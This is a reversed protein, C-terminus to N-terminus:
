LIDASISEAIREATEHISDHALHAYRATTEIDSHGLLKGIVPLTEGLALARSAFSHRLDHIRVDELEARARIRRWPKQLGVVGIGHHRAVSKLISSLTKARIPDHLLAVEHHECDQRTTVHVQSRRQREREYGM